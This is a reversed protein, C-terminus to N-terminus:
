RGKHGACTRCRRGNDRHDVFCLTRSDFAATPSTIYPIEASEGLPGDSHLEAMETAAQMAKTRVEVRTEYEMEVQTGSKRRSSSAEQYGHMRLWAANAEHYM